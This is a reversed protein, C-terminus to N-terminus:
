LNDLYSLGGLQRMQRLIWHQRALVHESPANVRYRSPAPLVAALLAAQQRTLAAASEGFFHESAAEVGFINAGFQVVNLYVELIRQKPWCLELLVTFWAELGKRLWSRAPWLFLNKATQQSITSAGRLRAGAEYAELANRIARFDFGHHYPFRQDEGAMVALKMVPAIAQYPVWRHVIPPQDPRRDLRSLLMVSTIPVPLWRLPIVLVLSFALWGLAAGALYRWLRRGRRKHRSRVRIHKGSAM